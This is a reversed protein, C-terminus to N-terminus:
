TMANLPIKRNNGNINVVLYETVSGATAATTASTMTLDGGIHLKSSPSTTGIGVNGNGKITMKTTLNGSSSTQFELRGPVNSASPSGDVDALISANQEFGSGSYGYFDIFGTTDGNQVISPFDITGRAKDFAVGAGGSSAEASRIRAIGVVQLKANSGQFVNDDGIVVKGDSQISFPSSDPNAEDEVILAPGTGTQTIRVAESASNDSFIAKKSTITDAIVADKGYVIRKSIVDSLTM